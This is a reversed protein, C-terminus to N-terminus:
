IEEFISSKKTKRHTTTFPCKIYKATTPHKQHKIIATVPGKILIFSNFNSPVLDLKIIEQLARFIKFSKVTLNM